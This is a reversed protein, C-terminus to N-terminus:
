KYFCLLQTTDLPDHYLCDVRSFHHKRALSYLTEQTEPFDSSSIHEEVRFFEQPTLLSWYQRVNELYRRIYTERDEEIPLVIDILLFVGDTKLLHPLQSILCDKQELSLHHLAFSALITDFQEEQNQSLQLVLEFLNGHIFMKEGSLKATNSRAIELAPESLDIGCYFNVTTDLLAQAAFSADGCGLDLMKFPKNYYSGLFKHLVDYIEQHGMYNQNLVKQYLRWQENFFENSPTSPKESREYQSLEIM